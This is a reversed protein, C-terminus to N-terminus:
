WTCITVHLQQERHVPWFLVTITACDWERRLPLPNEFLMAVCCVVHSEAASHAPSVPQTPLPPRNLPTTKTDCERSPRPRPTSERERQLGTIGCFWNGTTTTLSDRERKPGRKWAEPIIYDTIHQNFHYQVSKAAIELKIWLKIYSM